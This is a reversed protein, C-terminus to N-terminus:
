WAEIINVGEKSTEKKVHFVCNIIFPRQVLQFFEFAELPSSKLSSCAPFVKYAYQPCSLKVKSHSCVVLFLAAQLLYLRRRLSQYCGFLGRSARRFRWCLNEWSRLIPSGPKEEDTSRTRRERRRNVHEQDKSKWRDTAACCRGKQQEGLCRSCTSSPSKWWQQIQVNREGSSLCPWSASVIPEM